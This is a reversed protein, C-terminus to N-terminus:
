EDNGNGNQGDEASNGNRRVSRNDLAAAATGVTVVNSVRKIIVAQEYYRAVTIHVAIKFIRGTNRPNVM